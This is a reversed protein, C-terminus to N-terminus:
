LFLLPNFYFKYVNPSDLLSGKYKYDNPLHNLVENIKNTEDNVRVSSLNPNKRCHTYITCSTKLINNCINSM